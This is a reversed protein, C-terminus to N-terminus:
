HPGHRGLHGGHHGGWPHCWYYFQDKGEACIERGSHHKRGGTQINFQNRVPTDLMYGHLPPLMCSMKQAFGM